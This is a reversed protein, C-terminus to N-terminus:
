TGNFAVQYVIFSCSDKLKKKKKKRSAEPSSQAKSPKDLTHAIIRPYFAIFTADFTNFIKTQHHNPQLTSSQPNRLNM